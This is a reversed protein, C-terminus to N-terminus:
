NFCSSLFDSLRTKSDLSRQKKSDSLMRQLAEKHSSAATTPTSTGKATSKRNAPKTSTRSASSANRNAVAPLSSRRASSNDFSSNSSNNSKIVVSSKRKKSITVINNRPEKKLGTFQFRSRCHDCRANLLNAEFNRGKKQHRKRASSLKKPVVKFHGLRSHCNACLENLDRRKEKSGTKNKLLSSGIGAAEECQELRSNLHWRLYAAIHQRGTTLQDSSSSSSSSLTKTTLVKQAEFLFELTRFETTSESSSSDM